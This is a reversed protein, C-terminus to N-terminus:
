GGAPAPGVANHVGAELANAAWHGVVTGTGDGCECSDDGDPCKVVAIRNTASMGYGTLAIECASGLSCELVDGSAPGKLQM